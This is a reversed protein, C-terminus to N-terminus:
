RGRRRLRVHGSFVHQRHHPGQGWGASRRRHEQRHLHLHGARQRLHGDPSASKVVDIGPNFTGVYAAAIDFVPLELRNNGGGLAGVVAVNTTPETITSDCAYRWTEAPDRDLLDDENGGEKAVLTPSACTPQKPKAVDVLTVEALVDDVALPSTGVNTVLFEYSVETGSPVLATM